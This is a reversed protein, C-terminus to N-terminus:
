FTSHISVRFVTKGNVMKTLTRLQQVGLCGSGTSSVNIISREKTNSHFCVVSIM